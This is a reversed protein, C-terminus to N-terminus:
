RRIQNIEILWSELRSLVDSKNSMVYSNSSSLEDVFNQFASVLQPHNIAFCIPNPGTRCVIVGVDSKVYIAIDKPLGHDKLELHYHKQTKVLHILHEVHKIFNETSMDGAPGSFWDLPHQKMGDFEAPDPLVLWEFHKYEILNSMFASKRDEYYHAMGSDEHFIQKIQSHAVENPLTSLSPAQAVFAVDGKQSEFENLLSRFDDMRSATFIQMLPRCNRLYTEFEAVLTSVMQSDRHFLQESSESESVTNSTLGAIGPAIFLSRKFISEQYSPYYYPEIAGTMYLPLWKDIASLLENMNRNITHIIRIRHGVRLTHVLMQAWLLTFDPDETLWDMPEDSYLLLTTKEPSRIVEDLFKIVANRKGENGVFAEASLKKGSAYRSYNEHTFMPLKMSKSTNLKEIFQNVLTLSPKNDDGLWAAIRETLMCIECPSDNCDISLVDIINQFDSGHSTIYEAILRIYESKQPMERSGNRWRSVLSPDVSLFKALKNNPINQLHMLLSLKDNFKM